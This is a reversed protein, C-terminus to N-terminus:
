VYFGNDQAWQTLEDLAKRRNKNSEEKYTSLSYSSISGDELIKIVGEEILTDIYEISVNLFNAAQQKDM